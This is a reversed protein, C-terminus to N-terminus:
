NTFNENLLRNLFETSREVYSNLMMDVVTWKIDTNLVDEINNLKSKNLIRNTLMCQGLLTYLRDNMGVNGEYETVVVFPKHFKLCM